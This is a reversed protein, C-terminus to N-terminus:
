SLVVIGSEDRLETVGYLVDFGARVARDAMSYWVQFRIALGSAPDVVNAERVGSGAPAPVFPRTALIFAQRNLALNHYVPGATSPVMTSTFIRFGYLDGLAGEAVADPRANAWYTELTSDGLLAIEDKTSVVMARGAQPQKNDNFTKRATRVLAADVDTGGTGISGSLGAYLAFLDTELQEALAIVPGQVFRDLLDTGQLATARAVDEVLFDVYKHKNLTVPVSTGGAPTQVTAPTDAAKDQATFTGPYGINLTKGKWGPEYDTDRAVIRALVINARFIQLARQAWMEPIFGSTDAIAQTINAM